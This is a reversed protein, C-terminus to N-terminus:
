PKFNLIEEPTSIGLGSVSIRTPLIASFIPSLLQLKSSIPVPEPHIATETACLQLFTFIVAVSMESAARLVAKTFACFLLTLLFM